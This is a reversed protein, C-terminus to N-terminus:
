DKLYKEFGETEKIKGNKDVWMVEVDKFKKILNKGEEYDLIFLTTSLYDAVSSDKAVVTVSTFNEAPMLTKPSIIHNYDKGDVTYFRQYNGSTVVTLDKGYITEITPKKTNEKLNPNQVGIIWKDRGEIMPKGLAIINGGASLIASKCGKEKVKDMILQSAFGKSTAGLDLKMNSDELFVTLEEEDLIVKNISTHENAKRLDEIKPLKATKPNKLGEERYEHWIELVSGFAMNTVDSYEETMKKSFKILEFLDKDVKIPKIGANDNITKINNVGEFSDFHNYLKHLREFESKVLDYYQNYEEESQTYATFDIITDFVDFFTKQYKNYGKIVKVKNGACGTIFLVIILIISIFKKKM